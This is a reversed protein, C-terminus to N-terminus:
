ASEGGISAREFFVSLLLFSCSWLSAPTFARSRLACITAAVQQHLSEDPTDGSLVDLFEQAENTPVCGNVLDRRWSKLPLPTNLDNASCVVSAALLYGLLSERHAPDEFYRDPLKPIDVINWDADDEGEHSKSYHLAEIMCILTPILNEFDKKEFVEQLARTRTYGEFALPKREETETNIRKSIGTDLQLVRETMALLGWVTNLDVVPQDKIAENPEQSSCMGPPPEVLETPYDGSADCHIWFLMHRVTAHLYRAQVGNSLPVEELAELTSAFLKLSNEFKKQKWRAFAADAMFGICMNKSESYARAKDAGRLFYNEAEAWNGARTCAIGASRCCFVYDVRSLSPIQLAKDATQLAELDRGAHFLVKARQNVLSAENPFEKDAMNLVKLANEPSHGYEDQIVSMAVLGAVALKVSGWQRSKAVTFELVQLTREVDLKGDVLEKWWARNVLLTAFDLDSDCVKLLHDRKVSPLEDM